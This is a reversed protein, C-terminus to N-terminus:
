EEVAFQVQGQLSFALLARKLEGNEQIKMLNGHSNFIETFFIAERCDLRLRSNKRHKLKSAHNAM